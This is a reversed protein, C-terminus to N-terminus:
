GEKKVETWIEQIHLPHNPAVTDSPIQKWDQGVGIFVPVWKDGKWHAVVTKTANVAFREGPNNVLLNQAMDSATM